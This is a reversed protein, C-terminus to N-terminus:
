FQSRIIDDLDDSPSSPSTNGGGSVQVSAAKDRSLHEGDRSKIAHQYATELNPKFGQRGMDALVNLMGDHVVPDMADPHLATFSQVTELMAEETVFAAAAGQVPDGGEDLTQEPEALPM